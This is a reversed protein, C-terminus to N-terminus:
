PAVSPQFNTKLLPFFNYCKEIVGHGGHGEHSAEEAKTAIKELPLDKLRSIERPDQSTLNGPENRLM